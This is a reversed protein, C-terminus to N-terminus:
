PKSVYHPNQGFNPYLGFNANIQLQMQMAQASQDMVNLWVISESDNLMKANVSLMVSPCKVSVDSAQAVSRCFTTGENKLNRNMMEEYLQAPTNQLMWDQVSVALERKYIASNPNNFMLCLCKDSDKIRYILVGTCGYLGVRRKRFGCARKENPLIETPLSYEVAGSEMYWIPAHLTRSSYNSIEVAVKCTTPTGAIVAEVNVGRYELPPNTGTGAM